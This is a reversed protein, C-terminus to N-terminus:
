SDYIGLGTEPDFFHLARTDVVLAFRDRGRSVRSRAGFRGVVIAEGAEVGIPVETAPAGADDALERMEDTEAHTGRIAFHAMIESGLAERLELRGALTREPPAEGVLAADELTRRASASSSRGAPTPRCRRAARRADRRRARDAADGIVRQLTATRQEITADLLNM